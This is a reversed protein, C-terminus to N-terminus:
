ICTWNETTNGSQTLSMFEYSLWKHPTHTNTHTTGQYTIIAASILSWREPDYKLCVSRRSFSSFPHRTLKEQEWKTGKGGIWERGTETRHWGTESWSCDCVRRHGRLVWLFRIKRCVRWSPGQSDSRSKSGECSWCHCKLTPAVCIGAESHGLTCLFM